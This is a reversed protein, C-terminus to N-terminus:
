FEVCGPDAYHTLSEYFPSIPVVVDGFDAAHFLESFLIDDIYSVPIEFVIIDCHIPNVCLM